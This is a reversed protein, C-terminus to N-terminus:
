STKDSKCIIYVNMMYKQFIKRTEQTEHKIYVTNLKLTSGM